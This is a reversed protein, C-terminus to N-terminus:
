EFNLELKDIAANLSTTSPSFTVLSIDANNLYQLEYPTGAVILITPRKKCISKLLDVHSQKKWTNMSVLIVSDSEELLKNIKDLEKNNLSKYELLTTNKGVSKLKSLEIKDKIEEPFIILINKDKIKSIDKRNYVKISQDAVQKAVEIHEKSRLFDLSLPNSLLMSRKLSLVREVSANLRKESIRGSKVANLLATYYRFIEDKTTEGEVKNELDRGGILLIDNGALFANIFVEERNEGPINVGKMTLSDSIIIGKYNLQKRLLNELINSSLTACYKTDLSPYLIHATMIVPANSSLTRFPLLENNFVEKFKKDVVPLSYHSDVTVDGHGPFHKLCPIVGASLFGELSQKAFKAVTQPSDSFSRLGIVPNRPNNNVDVVPALVMNIGVALMEKGMIESSLYALGPINTAGLAANGPFETFGSELRTVVGGEQDTAIFLPIKAEKQLSTSLNRIQIPDTLKNAWKYYIIGGVHIKNLLFDAEANYTAGNFYVMFVQGVKEELSLNKLSLSFLSYPLLLYLFFLQKFNM